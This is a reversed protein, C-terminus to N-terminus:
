AGVKTKIAAVDIRIAAVATRMNDLVADIKQALARIGETEVRDMQRERALADKLTQIQRAFEAPDRQARRMSDQFSM